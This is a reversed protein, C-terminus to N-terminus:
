VMCEMLLDIFQVTFSLMTLARNKQTVSVLQLHRWVGNTCAPVSVDSVPASATLGSGRREQCPWEPFTPAWTPSSLVSDRLVRWGSGMRDTIRGSRRVETTTTLHLSSNSHPPYLHVDRNLIGYALTEFVRGAPRM